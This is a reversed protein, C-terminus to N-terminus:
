MKLGGRAVDWCGDTRIDVHVYKKQTDYTPPFLKLNDNQTWEDGYTVQLGFNRIMWIRFAFCSFTVLGPISPFFCDEDLYQM